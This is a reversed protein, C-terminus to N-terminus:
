VLADPQPWENGGLRGQTESQWALHAFIPSAGSESHSVARTWEAGALWMSNCPLVGFLVLFAKHPILVWTLKKLHQM